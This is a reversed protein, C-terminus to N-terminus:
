RSEKRGKVDSEDLRSLMTMGQDTIGVLFYSQGARIVYVARRQDLPLRDVVSIIGTANAPAIKMLKPLLKGLLLYALGCVAALALMTRLLSAIYDRDASPSSERHDFDAESQEVYQQFQETTSTAVGADSAIAASPACLLALALIAGAGRM